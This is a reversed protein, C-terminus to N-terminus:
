KMGFRNALGENPNRRNERNPRHEVVKLFGPRHDFGLSLESEFLM